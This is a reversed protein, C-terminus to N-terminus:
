LQFQLTHKFLAMSFNIVYSFPNSYRMSNIIKQDNNILNKLIVGEAVNKILNPLKYSAFYLMSTGLITALGVGALSLSFNPFNLFLNNKLQTFDNHLASYNILSQELKDSMSALTSSLNTNYAEIRNTFNVSLERIKDNILDNHKQFSDLIGEHIKNFIIISKKYLDLEDLNFKTFNESIEALLKRRTNQNDILLQDM